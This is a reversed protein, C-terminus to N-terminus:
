GPTIGCPSSSGRPRTPSGVTTSIEIGTHVSDDGLLAVALRTQRLTEGLHSIVQAATGDLGDLIRMMAPNVHDALRGRQPVAYRGLHFLHDREELSLRLGRALAALMQESPHPGRKQELRNDYDISMDSLM